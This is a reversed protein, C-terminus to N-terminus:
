RRPSPRSTTPTTGCCGGVINALGSEAFEGVLRGMTAPDQDYGGMANPLGANPYSSVWTSAQTALSELFPRMEEAGLACNIGVSFPDAHEVSTWFAEVTQGSVTATVGKPLEVPRKGIRSM